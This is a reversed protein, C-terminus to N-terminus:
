LSPKSLNSFFLVILCEHIYLLVVVMIMTIDERTYPSHLQYNYDLTCANIFVIIIFHCATKLVSVVQAYM